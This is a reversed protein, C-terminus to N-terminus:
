KQAGNDLGNDAILERYRLRKGRMGATMSGMIDITDQDRLNHRAAFEQVYRDLHKPSIKHFTGTHARKMMSWLSEIGNTHVDGRVYESLSHKVTEHDFTMGQYATADDTYVKAGPAAHEGVFGQLTKADAHEIVKGAVRRTKRDKAGIVAAKGATGRGTGRLEKRRRNSMNKRRAGFYTEDVEIPGDFVGGEESLAVRLRHALFWASRQNISLDRHLKMSSVSKLSTSLLYTAIMWTQFGLKSGEMVTGTKASFRKACEKERCRYPMTKHRAGTQVNLSGCHPCAIGKPWRRQIFWAEATADDPFHRFLAVMSIGSRDSKGPSRHPM